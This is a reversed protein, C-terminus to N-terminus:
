QNEWDPIQLCRLGSRGFLTYEETKLSKCLYLDHDVNNVTKIRKECVKFLDGDQHISLTVDVQNKLDVEDPIFQGFLCTLYDGDTPNRVAEVIEGVEFAFDM